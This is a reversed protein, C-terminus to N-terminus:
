AGMSFHRRKVMNANLHQFYTPVTGIELRTADCINCFREMHKYFSDDIPDITSGKKGKKPLYVQSIM